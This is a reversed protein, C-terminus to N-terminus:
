RSAAVLGDFDGRGCAGGEATLAITSGFAGAPVRGIRGTVQVDLRRNRRRVRVESVADEASGRWTWRRGRRQWGAGAPVRWDALVTGGADTVGIALGAAGPDPRDGRGLRLRAALTM